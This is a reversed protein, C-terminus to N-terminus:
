PERLLHALLGRHLHGKRAFRADRDYRQRGGTLNQVLADILMNGPGTDFAFVQSPKANKPIVTLNAIGGVNLSVRGIRAHRYLAYDAFPVLPAGEGGLAMDAPRFDSVTTIGTLNSITSGEGLQLTSAVPKGLFSSTRGQHFVTQGHNGILDIKKP